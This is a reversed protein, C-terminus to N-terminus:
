GVLLTYGLQRCRGRLLAHGTRFGARTLPFFVGVSADEFADVDFQGNELFPKEDVPSAVLYGVLGNVTEVRLGPVGCLGPDVRWMDMEMQM